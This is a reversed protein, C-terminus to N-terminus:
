MNELPLSCLRAILMNIDFLVFLIIHLMCVCVCVCLECLFYNTALYNLCVESRLLAGAIKADRFSMFFQHLSLKTIGILQM